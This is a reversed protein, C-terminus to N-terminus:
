YHYYERLEFGDTTQHPQLERLLYYKHFYGTLVVIRRAQQQRVFALIHAAMARNRTDWFETNLQYFAHYAALEPRAQVVANLRQYQYQQRRAALRYVAPQNIVYASQHSVVALSDTLAYYTDLVTGQESTLRRLEYLKDLLAMVEAPKTTIGHRRHYENRGEYDFPRMRVKRHQRRYQAIGLGENERPANKLELMPTFFSSDLEVLILDPQIRELIQAVSDPNFNRGPQHITGVIIVQTAPQQANSQFAILLALGVLFILQM